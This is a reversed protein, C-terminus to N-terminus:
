ASDPRAAAMAATTSVAFNRRASVPAPVFASSFAMAATTMPPVLRLPPCPVTIPLRTPASVIATNFAPRTSTPTWSVRCPTTIPATIM